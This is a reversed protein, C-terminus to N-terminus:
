VAACILHTKHCQCITAYGHVVSPIVSSTTVFVISATHAFGVCCSDASITMLGRSLIISVACMLLSLFPIFAVRHKETTCHSFTLHVHSAVDTRCSPLMALSSLIVCVNRKIATCTSSSWAGMHLSVFTLSKSLSFSLRLCLGAGCTTLHTHM